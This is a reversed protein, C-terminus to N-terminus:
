DAKFYGRSMKGSKVTIQSINILTFTGIFFGGTNQHHPLIRICKDLGLERAVREEPPFMYSKLLHVYETSAVQEVTDFIQGNKSMLNWKLLGHVSKLGQLKDRVDVLELQDKFKLLLNYVVAENEVPNLSCTSYVMLGGYQLLEAARKAIRSQIGHLNCAHAFNWKTWVDINKRFTGDGSCPVDALIRDFAVSAFSSSEGLDVRFNPLSSADQNIIMFNASELRKLQHMLMYCRKNELDNAIVFGEPVVTSDSHLFEILQATKSGPSACMDLIKHHPQVDLVLPPLMSVAEQRNINGNETQNILFQKFNDFHVNKRVDQRSMNVQWALQNPYWPLCKYIEDAQDDSEQLSSEQNALKAIILSAGKNASGDIVMQRNTRTLEDIYKFHKEKLTHLVQGAFSKYSTIRFTIPLPQKLIDLFKDYEAEAVLGLQRYYKEFHENKKIIIDYGDKKKEYSEGGERDGGGNNQQKGRRWKSKGM